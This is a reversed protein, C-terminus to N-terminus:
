QYSTTSWVHGEIPMWETTYIMEFKSKVVTSLPRDNITNLDPNLSVKQTQGAVDSLKSM